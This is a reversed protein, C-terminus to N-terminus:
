ITDPLKDLCNKIDRLTAAKNYYLKGCGPKPCKANWCAISEPWEEMDLDLLTDGLPRQDMEYFMRAKLERWTHNNVKEGCGWCFHNSANGATFAEEGDIFAKFLDRRRRHFSLLSMLDKTALRELQEAHREEYLDLTLTKTAALKAEEVWGLRTAIAYLRLPEALFQPATIASRIVSIPGRAMWKEALSLVADLEEFSEWRPGELGSILRLIREVIVDKEDIVFTDTVQTESLEAHSQPPPLIGRFLESTNRLVFSPIHYLTGEVSRLVVNGQSSNFVPHTKRIPDAVQAAAM